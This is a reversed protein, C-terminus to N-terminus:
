CAQQEAKCGIGAWAWWPREVLAVVIGALRAFYLNSIVVRCVFFQGTFALGLLKYARSSSLGALKLCGLLQLPVLPVCTLM